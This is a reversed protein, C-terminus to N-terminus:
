LHHAVEEHIWEAIARPSRGECPLVLDSAIAYPDAHGEGSQHLWIAAHNERLSAVVEADALLGEDFVAVEPRQSSQIDQAGKREVFRLGLSSALEAGVEANQKRSPGFLAVGMRGKRRKGDYDVLEAAIRGPDLSPLPGVFLEFAPLGQHVLWDIGSVAVCSRARAYGHLLGDRYDADVVVLPGSAATERRAPFWSEPPPLNASMLTSVIIDAEAALEALRDLGAFDCGLGKLFADSRDVTRNVVGVSAGAKALAFAASKGAGGSGIVLCRKGAIVVGAARLSGSVGVPDTNGGFLKGGPRKLVCNIAALSAAEPSFDGLLAAVSEKYPATVNMGVVGLEEFLGLAEAANEAAIRTYNGEIGAIRFLSRFLVPSLSHFVPRGTVGLLARDTSM